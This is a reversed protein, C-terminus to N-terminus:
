LDFTTPLIPGFPDSPKTWVFPVRTPNIEWQNKVQNLRGYMIHINTNENHIFGYFTEIANDDGPFPLLVAHRLSATKVYVITGWPKGSTGACLAMEGNSLTGVLDEKFNILPCVLHKFESFHKLGKELIVEKPNSQNELYFRGLIDKGVFIGSGSAAYHYGLLSFLTLHATKILSVLSALRADKSYALEFRKEPDKDLLQERTARICIPFLRKGEIDELEMRVYDPPVPGKRYPFHKVEIDGRYIKPCFHTYFKKDAFVNFAQLTPRHQILEFDSEFNSGYFSDVDKRQVVWIGPSGEFCENVVHGRQLEAAEDVHLIPCYFHKFPKGCFREYDRRHIELRAETVPNM